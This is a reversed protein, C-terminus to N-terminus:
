RGLEGSATQGDLVDKLTGRPELGMVIDVNSLGLDGDVILVRAGNKAASLAMNITSMTKGVGGKGSTVAVIKGMM